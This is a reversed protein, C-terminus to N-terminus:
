KKFSILVFWDPNRPQLSNSFITIREGIPKPYQALTGFKGHRIHDPKSNLDVFSDLSYQGPGLKNENDKVFHGTKPLGSRNETFLDYPGRKSM